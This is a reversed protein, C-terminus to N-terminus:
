VTLSAVNIKANSYQTPLTLLWKAKVNMCERMGKPPSIKNLTWCLYHRTGLGVSTSCSGSRNRGEYQYWCTLLLGWGTHPTAPQTHAHMHTHLLHMCYLPFCSLLCKSVVWLVHKCVFGPFTLYLFLGVLAGSLKWHMLSKCVRGMIM